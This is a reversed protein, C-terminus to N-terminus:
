GNGCAFNQWVYQVEVKLAGTATLVEGLAPDAALKLYNADDVFRFTGALVNWEHLSYWVVLGLPILVFLAIGVLQPAIFLYGALADRRGMTWFPRKRSRDATPAALTM